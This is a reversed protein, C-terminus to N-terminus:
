YAGISTTSDSSLQVDSINSLFSEIEPSGSRHQQGAPSPSREAEHEGSKEPVENSFPDENQRETLKITDSGSSAEHAAEPPPTREINHESSKNDLVPDKDQIDDDAKADHFKVPNSELSAATLNGDSKETEMNAQSPIALQTDTGQPENSDHAPYPDDATEIDEGEGESSSLPPHTDDEALDAESLRSRKEDDINVHSNSETVLNTSSLNASSNTEQTGTLTHLPHTHMYTYTFLDHM